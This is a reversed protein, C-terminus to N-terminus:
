YIGIDKNSCNRTTKGRNKREEIAVLIIAGALADLLDLDDISILKLMGSVADKLGDMNSDPDKLIREIHIVEDWYARCKHM